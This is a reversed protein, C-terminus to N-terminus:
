ANVHVFERTELIASRRRLNNQWASLSAERRALREQREELITEARAVIDDIRRQLWEKEEVSTRRHHAPSRPRSPPTQPRSPSAPRPEPSPAGSRNTMRGGFGIQKARLWPECKGVCPGTVKNGGEFRGAATIYSGPGPDAGDAIARSYTFQEAHPIPRMDAATLGEPVKARLNELTTAKPTSGFYIKKKEPVYLAVIVFNEGAAPHFKNEAEQFATEAAQQVQQPIQNPALATLGSADAHGVVTPKRQGPPPALSLQPQLVAQVCTALLALVPILAGLAPTGGMISTLPAEIILPIPLRTSVFLTFINSASLPALSLILVIHELDVSYQVYWLLLLM